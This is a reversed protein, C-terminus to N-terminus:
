KLLGARALAQVIRPDDRPDSGKFAQPSPYGLELRIVSSNPDLPVYIAVGEYSASSLL